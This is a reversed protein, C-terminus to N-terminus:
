VAEVAVELGSYLLMGTIPDVDRTTSTLRNVNMEDSWGHPVNICGPRLTDDFKLPRTLDGNASSVRVLAGEELGAARADQSHMFVQPPDRLDTM